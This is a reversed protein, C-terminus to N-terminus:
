HMGHVRQSFAFVMVHTVNPPRQCTWTSSDRSTPFASSACVYRKALRCAAYCLRRFLGQAIESCVCTVNPSGARGALPPGLRGSQCCVAYGTLPFRRFWQTHLTQRGVLKLSVTVAVQLLCYKTSTYSFRPSELDLTVLRPQRM